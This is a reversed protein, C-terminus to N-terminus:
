TLGPDDLAGSRILENIAEARAQMNEKNREALELAQNLQAPGEAIGGMAEGAAIQAEAAEQHASFLDCKTRYEEM